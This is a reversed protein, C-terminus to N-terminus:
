LAPELEYDDSADSEGTICTFCMGLNAVMRWIPRGCNMCEVDTMKAWHKYQKLSVGIVGQKFAQEPSLYGGFQHPFYFNESHSM